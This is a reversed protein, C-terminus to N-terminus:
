IYTPSVAQKPDQIKKQDAQVVLIICYVKAQLAEHKM